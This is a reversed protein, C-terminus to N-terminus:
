PTASTAVAVRFSGYGDTVTVGMLAPATRNPGTCDAGTCRVQFLRVTASPLPTMGDPAYVTGAVAASAPLTVNHTVSAPGGVTFGYETFRPASSGTPPDYDLQYTGPDLPLDFTGNTATTTSAPAPTASTCSANDSTEQTATIAVNSLPYGQYDRVTGVLTPRATLMITILTPASAVNVASGGVTAGVPSDCPIAFASNAPPVVTIQYNVATQASGPLLSLGVIGTTDTLGDRAFETTGLTSTGVVTEAHVLAGSVPMDDSGKVSVNFQNLRLYAPLTITATTSPQPAIPNSVFTPDAPTQGQPM